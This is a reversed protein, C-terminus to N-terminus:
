AAFNCRKKWRAFDACQPRKVKRRFSAFRFSGKAANKLFIQIYPIILTFKCDSHFLYSCIVVMM